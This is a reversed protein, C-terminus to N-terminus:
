FYKCNEGEKSGKKQKVMPGYDDEKDLEFLFSKSDPNFNLDFFKDPEIYDELINVKFGDEDWWKKIANAKSETSYMNYESSNIALKSKVIYFNFQDEFPLLKSANKLLSYRDYDISNLANFGNQEISEKTYQSKLMMSIIHINKRSMTQLIM